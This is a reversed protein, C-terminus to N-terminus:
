TDRLYIPCILEHQLLNFLTIRLNRKNVFNFGCVDRLLEMKFTIDTVPNGAINCRRITTSVVLVDVDTIYNRPIFLTSISPSISSIDEILNNSVDLHKLNQLQRLPSIDQIRNFSVDIFKLTQIFSLPTVDDIRNDAVLIKTINSWKQPTLDWIMNKSLCLVSITKNGTLPKLDSIENYMASLYDVHTNHKMFSLNHINGGSLFASTEKKSNKKIKRICESDM